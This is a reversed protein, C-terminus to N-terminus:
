QAAELRPDDDDAELDATLASNLGDLSRAAEGFQVGLQLRSRPSLGFRDELQRIEADCQAILSALPNLRPQGQSGRVLWEGKCARRARERDDYLTFLRELAAIDTGPNVVKALPSSWFEHWRDTTTKLLGDPPEPCL